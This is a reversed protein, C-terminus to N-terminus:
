KLVKEPMAKPTQQNKKYNEIVYQFISSVIGQELEEEKALSEYVNVTNAVYQNNNNGSISQKLQEWFKM